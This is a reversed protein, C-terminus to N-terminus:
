LLVDHYKLPLCILNKKVYCPELVTIYFAFLATCLNPKEASIEADGYSM